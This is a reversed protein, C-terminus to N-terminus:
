AHTDYSKWPAAANRDAAAGAVCSSGEVQLGSPTGIAAKEVPTLPGTAGTMGPVM